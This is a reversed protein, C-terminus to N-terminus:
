HSQPRTDYPAEARMLEDGRGVVFLPAMTQKTKRIDPSIIIGNGGKKKCHREGLAIL